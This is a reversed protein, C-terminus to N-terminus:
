KVNRLIGVKKMVKNAIQNMQKEDQKNKHNYGLLHLLGHVFLYTWERKISHNFEKAQKQIQNKCLFIDGLMYYKIQLSLKQFDNPFSLVDTTKDKNRYQKSLTKMEKNNVLLVNVESPKKLDLIKELANAAEQFCKKYRFFFFKVKNQIFVKM